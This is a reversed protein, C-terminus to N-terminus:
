KARRHSPTATASRVVAAPPRAEQRAQEMFQFEGWFLVAIAGGFFWLKLTAMQDDAWEGRLMSWGDPTLLYGVAEFFGAFDGFLVRFLFFIVVLDVIVFVPVAFDASM